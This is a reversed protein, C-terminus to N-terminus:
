DLSWDVINRFRDEIDSVNLLNVNKITTHTYYVFKPHYLFIVPSDEMLLDQFEFYDKKRDEKAAVPDFSRAQELLRDVKPLTILSSEGPQRNERPKVTLASGIYSSVNLKPHETQSSHFLEYRDPDIFTDVGYLVVDFLRPALIQNSLEDLTWGTPANESSDQGPQNKRDIIVNVGIEELDKKITRAVNQRDFTDVYYLSFAMETGADNTRYLDGKKITWGAVTLLEKAIEINYRYRATNPNFYFSRANIPGLAEEGVGQLANQIVEDRNIASSIAQRVKIDGFFSPGIFNGNPDKKLNFYLSWYQNYLVPSLTKQVQSYDNLESLYEVSNSALSHVEGNQIAEVSEKLNRYYKFQITRFKPVKSKYYEDNYIVSVSFDDAGGFKFMGTGVPSRYLEPTSSNVTVSNIDQIKHKPIIKIGILELFNSFIPKNKIADCSNIVDTVTKTCVRVSYNDIKEWRLQKFTQVYTNTTEPLSSVLDFTAIVDDATFAVGDHWKINTRLDFQYDAGAQILIVSQALVDTVKTEWNGADDQVLEYKILPEYILENLDKELQINTPLLPNVRNIKQVRGNDDTGMVVAELLKNTDASVIKNGSNTFLFFVGSIAVLFALAFHSYPVAYNYLNLGAVKVSSKGLLIDPYNWIGDRIAYLIKEIFQFIKSM